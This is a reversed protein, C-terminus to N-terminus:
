VEMMIRSHAKIQSTALIKHGETLPLTAEWRTLIMHHNVLIALNSTHLPRSLPNSNLPPLNGLETQITPIM